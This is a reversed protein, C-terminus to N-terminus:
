FTQTQSLVLHSCCGVSECGLCALDPLSMLVTPRTLLHQMNKGRGEPLRRTSLVRSSCEEGECRQYRWTSQRRIRWGNGWTYQRSYLRTWRWFGSWVLGVMTCPASSGTHPAVLPTLVLFVIPLLQVCRRSCMPSYMTLMLGRVLQEPLPARTGQRPHAEVSCALLHPSSILRLTRNMPRRRLAVRHMCRM